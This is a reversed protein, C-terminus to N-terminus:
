FIESFWESNPLHSNWTELMKEKSPLMELLSYLTIAQKEAFIIPKGNIKAPNEIQEPKPNERFFIIKGPNLMSIEKQLMQSLVPKERPMVASNSKIFFTKACTNLDINLRKFLRQLLSKAEANLEQPSHFVLLYPANTKEDSPVTFSLSRMSKQYLSHKQLANYFGALNTANQWLNDNENAPKPPPIIQVPPQAALKAPPTFLVQTPSKARAVVLPEKLVLESIGLERQASLYSHIQRIRPEGESQM